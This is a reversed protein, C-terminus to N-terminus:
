VAGRYTGTDYESRIDRVLCRIEDIDGGGLYAIDPERRDFSLPVPYRGYWVASRGMRRLLDRRYGLLACKVRAIEALKVLDHSKLQGPLDHKNNVYTELERHSDRVIFAKLLNEVAYAALM